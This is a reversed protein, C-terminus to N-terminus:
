DKSGVAVPCILIKNLIKPVPIQKDVGGGSTGELVQERYPLRSFVPANVNVDLIHVHIQARDRVCVVADLKIKLGIYNRQGNFYALCIYKKLLLM